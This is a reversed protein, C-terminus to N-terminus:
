KEACFAKFDNRHLLFSAIGKQNGLFNNELWKALEIKCSDYESAVHVFPSTIAASLFEPLDQGGSCFDKRKAAADALETKLAPAKKIRRAM